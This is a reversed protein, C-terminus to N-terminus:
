KGKFVFDCDAEVTLFFPGHQGPTYTVPMITYVEENPLPELVFGEPTAIEHIPVFGTTTWPVGQHYIGTPEKSVRTGAVVYFGMMCDVANDKACKKRWRDEPRRLKIHVRSPVDTRLELTFKPNRKWDPNMHCGGSQPETWAGPITRVQSQPM